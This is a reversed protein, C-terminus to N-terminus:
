TLLNSVMRWVVYACVPVCHACLISVTRSRCVHVFFFGRLLPFGFSRPTSDPSSEKVPFQKVNKGDTFNVDLLRVQESVHKGRKKIVCM